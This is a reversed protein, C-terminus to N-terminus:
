ISIKMNLIKEFRKAMDKSIARKGKEYDSVMNQKIGVKEALQKQTLGEKLRYGALLNGSRNEDLEKYFQTEEIPILEDGKNKVDIVEIDFKKSIWLVLEEISEGNISLEIRPKKVVALM